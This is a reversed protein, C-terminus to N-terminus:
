LDLLDWNREQLEGQDGRVLPEGQWAGATKEFFDPSWGLEEPTKPKVEPQILQYIVMVEFERNVDSVSMGVPIDLHLFGDASVRSRVTVSQM